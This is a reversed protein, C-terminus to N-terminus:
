DAFDRGNFRCDRAALRSGVLRLLEARDLAGANRRFPAALLRIDCSSCVIAAALLGIIIAESGYGFIRLAALSLVFGLVAHLSEITNFRRMLNGSRNVSQNLQVLSRFLLTPLALWVAATYQKPLPMLFSACVGVSVTALCMLYFVVYAEKLLGPRRDAIVAAPFFRTVAIPLALFLSTQLVLIASFVYSYAGFAAPTLLRTYAYIMLVSVM